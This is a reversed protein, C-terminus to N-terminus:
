QQNWVKNKELLEPDRKYICCGHLHAYTEEDTLFNETDHGEKAIAREITTLETKDSRYALILKQEKADWDARRVGRVSYAAREIRDKCMGCIGLVTIEVKEVKNSQATANDTFFFLGGMLVSVFIVSLSKNM